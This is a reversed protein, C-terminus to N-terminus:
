PLGGPLAPHRRCLSRLVRPLSVAPHAHQCNFRALLAHSSVLGEVHKPLDAENDSEAFADVACKLVLMYSCLRVNICTLIFFLAPWCLILLHPPWGGKLQVVDQFCSGLSRVYASARECRCSFCWLLPPM